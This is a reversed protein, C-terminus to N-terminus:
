FLFRGASLKLDVALHFQSRAIRQLTKFFPATNQQAKGREPLSHVYGTVSQAQHHKHLERELHRVVWDNLGPRLSSSFFPFLGNM